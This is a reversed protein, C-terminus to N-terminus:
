AGSGELLAHTKEFALASQAWNRSSDISTMLGYLIDRWMRYDRVASKQRVQRDLETLHKSKPLLADHEALDLLSNIEALLISIRAKHVVLKNVHQILPVPEEPMRESLIGSITNIYERNKDLFLKLNESLM